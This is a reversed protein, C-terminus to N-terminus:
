LCETESMLLFVASVSIRFSRNNPLLRPRMVEQSGALLTLRAESHIGTVVHHGELPPIYLLMVGCPSPHRNARRAWDWILNAQIALL